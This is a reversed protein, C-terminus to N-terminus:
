GEIKDFDAIQGALTRIKTLLGLRNEREEAVDSNVIVQDFFADIPARLAALATMAGAYDEAKLATEILPRATQIASFLSAEEDTTGTHPETTPLDGKKAEAKLINAARKYGALLNAGDDTSLFSGLATIRNTIDVLDDGGLAFVADIHDHKVGQDRLYVKLRDLIFARLDSTAAFAIQMGKDSVWYSKEDKMKDFVDETAKEYTERIMSGEELLENLTKIKAEALLASCNALHAPLAVAFTAGFSITLDNELIIRVVGLAARRLAYPDKSGTPKEDIAWFGVLTDFKDALAVAVAVPNTPVSDSPGQPKYHEEIAVAIDKDGGEKAYMLRGILGQLSTFEVVMHTVLDCKALKAAQAAKDPDAGVKPALERALAAVRESKDKISGLKQHFIVGDLEDYRSELTRKADEQEFFRADDLRASLVRSNGRAIEVGGDPAVQNAVVIFKPALNGTKPDRVAFYKQHTRMSLKIVEAPLKLFSEDMDGLIVVPWEALGAVENLLGQDEVLELGAKKCVAQADKLIINKRAQASLIVHGAGELKEQYDKFHKVHFVGSGMRRHGRTADGSAMDNVSFKVVDGDLLCLISKIPRVWRFTSTGSKMSKPWPFKAMIDPIIDALIDSALQGKKELLAVYFEGKKDSRIEAQSIDAIGAGRMFGALAQEPAGVRPGKREESIDPSRLPIGAVVVLRRPGTFVQLDDVSLGAKKLGDGLMRGLDAGAKEQMRAPIEESLIEFLLEAM